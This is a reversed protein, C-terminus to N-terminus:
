CVKIPLTENIIQGLNTAEDFIYKSDKFEFKIGCLRCPLTDEMEM